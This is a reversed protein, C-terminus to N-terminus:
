KLGLLQKIDEVAPTPMLNLQHEPSIHGGKDRDLGVSATDTSEQCLKIILFNPLQLNQEPFQIQCNETTTFVLLISQNWQKVM